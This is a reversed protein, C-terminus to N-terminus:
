RSLIGFIRGTRRDHVCSLFLCFSYLFFLHAKFFFHKQEGIKENMQSWVHFFCKGLFMKKKVCFLKDYFRKKKEKWVKEMFSCFLNKVRKWLHFFFGPFFFNVQNWVLQRSMKLKEKWETKWEHSIKAKEEPFFYIKVSECILFFNPVLFLNDHRFRKGLWNDLWLCLLPAEQPWFQYLLYLCQIILRVFCKKIQNWCAFFFHWGTGCIEKTRFKKKM